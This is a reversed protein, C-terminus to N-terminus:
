VASVKFYYYFFYHCLRSRVQKYKSTSKNIENLILFKELNSQIIEVNFRKIEFPREINIKNSPVLQMTLINTQKNEVGESRKLNIKGSSYTELIQHELNEVGFLEFYSVLTCVFLIKTIQIHKLNKKLVCKINEKSGTNNIPGPQDGGPNDMRVNASGVLTRGPREGDGAESRLANKVNNASKM